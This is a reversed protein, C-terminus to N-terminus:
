RGMYIVVKGYVSLIYCLITFGFDDIESINHKQGIESKKQYKIKSKITEAFSGKLSFANNFYKIWESFGGKEWYKYKNSSQQKISFSPNKLLIPFLHSM